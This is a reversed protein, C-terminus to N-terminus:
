EKITSNVLDNMMYKLEEMYYGAPFERSNIFFSPTFSVAANRTWQEHDMLHQEIDNVEGLPYKRSFDDLDPTIFWDHLIKENRVPDSDKGTLLHMLYKTATLNDSDKSRRVAFRIRIRINERHVNLIETLLSHAYSCAGCYPNCVILFDIKSQPNGLYIEKEFSTTDMWKSNEWRWMFISADRKFRSLRIVDSQLLLNGHYSQKFSILFSLAICICSVAAILDPARVNAFFLSPLLLACQFWLLVIIGLCVRCSKKLVFSQYVISLVTIPITLVSLILLPTLAINADSGPVWLCQYILLGVFYCSSIDAVTLDFPLRVPSSNVVRSCDDKVTDCLKKMVRTAIGLSKLAISFSLISAAISSAILLVRTFSFNVALSSIALIVALLIISTKVQRQQKEIKLNTTNEQTDNFFKQKEALVIVGDWPEFVERKLLKKRHRVLVLEESSEHKLHALLPYPLEPINSKDIAIVGNAIGLHDLTDTLSALSPFGPHTSLHDKLYKSSIGFGLFHLWKLVQQQM